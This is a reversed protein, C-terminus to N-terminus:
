SPTKQPTNKTIIRFRFHAKDYINIRKCNVDKVCFKLLLKSKMDSSNSATMQIRCFENIEGVFDLYYKKLCINFHLKSSKLKQTIKSIKWFIRRFM